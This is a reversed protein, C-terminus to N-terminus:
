AYLKGLIKARSARIRHDAAFFLELRQATSTPLRAVLTELGRNHWAYITQRSTHYEKALKAVGVLHRGSLPHIRARAQVIKRDRENPILSPLSLILDMIPIEDSTPEALRPADFRDTNWGLWPDDATEPWWSRYETPKLRGLPMSYLKMAAWELWARVDDPAPNAM